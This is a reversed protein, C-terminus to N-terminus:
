QPAPLLTFLYLFLGVLVFYVIFRIVTFRRWQESFWQIWSDVVSVVSSCLPWPESAIEEAPIDSVARSDGSPLISQKCIPCLASKEILWPEICEKHFGHGCPLMTYYEQDEFDTICIVCSDPQRCSKKKKKKRQKTKREKWRQRLRKRLAPCPHRRYHCLPRKWM